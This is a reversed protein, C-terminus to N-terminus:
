CSETKFIHKASVANCIINLVHVKVDIKIVICNM